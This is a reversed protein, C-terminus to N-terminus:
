ERHFYRSLRFVMSRIARLSRNSSRANSFAIRRFDLANLFMAAPYESGSFASRTEGSTYLRIVCPAM